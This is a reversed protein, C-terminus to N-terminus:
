RSRIRICHPGLGARLALCAPGRARPEIEGHVGDIRFDLCQSLVRAVHCPPGSRATREEKKLPRVPREKVLQGRHQAPRPRIDPADAEVGAIAGEPGLARAVDGKAPLGLVPGVVQAVQDGLLGDGIEHKVAVGARDVCLRDRDRLSLPQRNMDELFAVHPGVPHGVLAAAAVAMGTQHLDVQGPHVGRQLMGM